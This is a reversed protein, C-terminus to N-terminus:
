KAAAAAELEALYKQPVMATKASNIATTVAAKDAGSQILQLADRYAKGGDVSRASKLASIRNLEQKGFTLTDDLSAKLYPNTTVWGVKADKESKLRAELAATEEKIAAETSFRDASPMRDLGVQRERM